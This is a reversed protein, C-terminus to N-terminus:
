TFTEFANRHIDLHPGSAFLAVPSVPELSTKYAAQEKHLGVICTLIEEKKATMHQSYPHHWHAGM